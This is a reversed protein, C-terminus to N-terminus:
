LVMRIGKERKMSEDKGVEWLKPTVNNSNSGALIVLIIKMHSFTFFSFQIRLRDFRKNTPIDTPAASANHM